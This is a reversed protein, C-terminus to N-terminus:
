ADAMLAAARTTVATAGARIAAADPATFAGDRVVWEGAAMVDRVTGPGGAALFAEVPDSGEAVDASVAVLDAQVGVAISGLSGAMGLLQAGALTMMWLAEAPTITPDLARLARMEAFLDLDNNSAASDTGVALRVGALRLAVVPPEGNGLWANSRPCLVVGRAKAALLTADTDDIHVAHVCVADDLAGLRDLYAVPSVGPPEFGHALRAAREAFPSDEGQLLAAEAASEAVHVVFPVGHRRALDHAARLLGPGATYPTHPSLGTEVRDEPGLAEAVEPGPWGRRALSAPMEDAPMGLVEWCFAGALGLGASARAGGADYVIDVVATTGSAFCELTGFASAVAFDEPDLGVVARTVRPLWDEMPAPPALGALATLALHTHANVLGPALICGPLEVTDAAEEPWRSAVDSAPGVDVIVGGRVAVAGERIPEDCVPLVTEAVVIM